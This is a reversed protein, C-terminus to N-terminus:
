EGSQTAWERYCQVHLYLVRQLREVRLEIEYEIEHSQIPHSCLDCLAGTGQGAWTRHPRRYPTGRLGGGTRSQICETGGM